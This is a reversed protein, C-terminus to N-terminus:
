GYTIYKKPLTEYQIPLAPPGMLRMMGVEVLMPNDFPSDEANGYTFIQYSYLGDDSNAFVTDVDIPFFDARDPILGQVPIIATIEDKTYDNKFVFRYYRSYGYSNEEVTVLM